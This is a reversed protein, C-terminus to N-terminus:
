KISVYVIIFPNGQNFLTALCHSLERPYFASKCQLLSPVRYLKQIHNLGESISRFACNILISCDMYLGSKTLWILAIKKKFGVKSIFHLVFAEVIYGSVM